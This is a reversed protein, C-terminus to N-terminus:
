YTWSLNEFTTLENENITSAYNEPFNRLYTIILYHPLVVHVITKTQQIGFLFLTWNQFTNSKIVNHLIVPIKFPVIFLMCEYLTDAVGGKSSWILLIRRINKKNRENDSTTAAICVFFATQIAFGSSPCWLFAFGNKAQKFFDIRSLIFCSVLYLILIMNPPGKDPQSAPQSHVTASHHHLFAHCGSSPFSSPFIFNAFLGSEM